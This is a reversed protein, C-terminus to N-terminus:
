TAIDQTYALPYENETTVEFNLKLVSSGRIAVIHYENQPGNNEEFSEPHMIYSNGGWPFIGFVYTGSLVAEKIEAFTKDITVTGAEDDVTFNLKLSGGSAVANELKNLKASTVIDGTKWNTPEYSM